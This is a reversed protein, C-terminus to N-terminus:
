KEGKINIDLQSFPFIVGRANFEDYMRRNLGHYLAWYDESKCWAKVVMDVSSSSLASLAIYTPQDQLVFEDSALVEEIIETVVAIDSGYQVSFTWAVCRTSEKSYNTVSNNSLAGNPVIVMKNDLTNILTSFLSIEKVTGAFGQAEIYDGVRFPRLFLILVGGAFNQLTGSLAMGIALGVSAFLALFSSTDIGLFSVITFALLILLAINTLNILFSSLSVEVNRAAFVKRMVGTVRGIIWRGIIFILLAVLLKSGVNLIMSTAWSILEENSMSTLSAAADMLTPQPTTAEAVEASLNLFM